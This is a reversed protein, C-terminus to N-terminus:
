ENLIDCLIEITKDRVLPGDVGNGEIYSAFFYPAENILTYGIFWGQGKGFAGTKGYIDIPYGEQCMISKVYEM